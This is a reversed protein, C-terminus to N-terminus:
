VHSNGGEDAGATKTEDAKTNFADAPDEVQM